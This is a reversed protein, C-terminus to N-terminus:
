EDRIGGVRRAQDVADPAIDALVELFDKAILRKARDIFIPVPSSPETKRFFQAVADLARAADQRSTIHDLGSAGGPAAGPGGAAADGSAAEAPKREAIRESLFREIRVLPDLVTDFSPAAESGGADRMRTDIDRLAAIITAVTGQVAEVEELPTDTFAAIIHAESPLDAEGEPAKLQGTAIDIDRLSFIGLQRHRVLPARRVADVVTMRDALCSLANKREIADEDVRPYVAEPFDRLWGAAVATADALAGFGDLHLGSAALHVLVRLDRSRALGELCTGKLARWDVDDEIPTARGFLRFGDLVALFGAEDLDEGGPADASLPALLGEFVPDM